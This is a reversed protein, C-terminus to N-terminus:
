AVVAQKWIRELYNNMLWGDDSAIYDSSIVADKFLVFISVYSCM